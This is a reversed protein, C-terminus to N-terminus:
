YASHHIPSRNERKAFWISKFNICEPHMAIMQEHVYNPKPVRTNEALTIYQAQRLGCGLHATGSRTCLQAEILWIVDLYVNWKDALNPDDSTPIELIDDATLNERGLIEKAPQNYGAM